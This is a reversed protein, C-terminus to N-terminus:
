APSLIATPPITLLKNEPITVGHDRGGFAYYVTLEKGTGPCPDCGMDANTVLISLKGQQLKGRLVETVTKYFQGAGYTAFHIALEGGSLGRQIMRGPRRQEYRYLSVMAWLSIFV